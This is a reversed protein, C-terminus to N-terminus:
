RNLDDEQNVFINGKSVGGRVPIADGKPHIHAIPKVSKKTGSSAAWIAIGNPSPRLEVNGHTKGDPHKFHVSGQHKAIYGNKEHGVVTVGAVDKEGHEGDLIAHIDPIGFSKAAKETTAMQKSQSKIREAKAKGEVEGQAAAAAKTKERKDRAGSLLGKRDLYTQNDYPKGPKLPDEPFGPLDDAPYVYRDTKVPAPERSRTFRLAAAKSAAGTAEKITSILEKFKRM